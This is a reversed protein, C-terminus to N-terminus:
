KSTNADPSVRPRITTRTKIGRINGVGDGTVVASAVSKSAAVDTCLTDVTVACVNREASIPSGDLETMSFYKKIDGEVDKEDLDPARFFGNRNKEEM